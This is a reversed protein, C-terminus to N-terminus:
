LINPDINPDGIQAVESINNRTVCSCGNPRICRENCAAHCAKAIIGVCTELEFLKTTNNPECTGVIKWHKTSSFQLM